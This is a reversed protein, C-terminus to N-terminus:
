IGGGGGGMGSLTKPPCCEPVAGFHEQQVSLIKLSNLLGLISGLSGIGGPQTVLAPIKLCDIPALFRAPIPNDYRGALSSYM